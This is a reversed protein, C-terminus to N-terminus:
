AFDLHGLSNNNESFLLQSLFLSLWSSSSSSSCRFLYLLFSYLLREREREREVKGKTNNNLSRTFSMLALKSGSYAHYPDYDKSSNLDDFNISASNMSSTVVNVVRSPQSQILKPLLLNTLLFAGALNVFCLM